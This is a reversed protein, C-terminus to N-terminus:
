LATRGLAVVAEWPVSSDMRGVTVKVLRPLTVTDTWRDVWTNLRPDFYKIQLSQVNSLLPVWTENTTLTVSDERPKRVVGIELKDSGNQIPRLRLSVRYEGNAYRTLLGPGAGSIWTVEDRPKNNLKLPEGTMAGVGSPLSQWQQSLLNFFGSYQADTLSAEASIRVATLNAAVFRYISISMMALIAVAMVIELLTFGRGRHSKASGAATFM